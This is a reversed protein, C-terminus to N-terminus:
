LSFDYFHGQFSYQPGLQMEQWFFAYEVHRFFITYVAFIWFIIKYLDFNVRDSYITCLKPLMILAFISYYQIVRMNSPNIMTLPTLFLAVAIANIYVYNYANMKCLRKNQIYLGISLLLIFVMFGYAGAGEYENLYNSYQEFRTGVMFYEAIQSGWNMMPIFGLFAFMLLLRSNQIYPLIIFGSFLLASKHQTAAILILLIGKMWKKGLIYPIAFLLFSAAITQRIGTISMFSYYLCQYLAVAVLIEKNSHTYKYLLQGLATFFLAAVGILFLRYNPIVSAFIKQLILYGPDKGEDTYIFDFFSSIIENWKMNKVEEFMEYYTFTDAGIALHRFGSQIIFLIMIFIINNKRSLDASLTGKYHVVPGLLRWYILLFIFLQVYM